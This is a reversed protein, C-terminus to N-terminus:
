PIGIFKFKPASLNISLVVIILVLDIEFAFVVKFIARYILLKFHGVVGPDIIIDIANGVFVSTQIWIQGSLLLFRDINFKILLRFSLNYSIVELFVGVKSFYRFFYELSLKSVHLTTSLSSM